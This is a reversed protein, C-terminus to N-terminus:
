RRCLRARAGSRSGSSTCWGLALRRPMLVWRPGCRRVQLADVHFNLPPFKIGFIYGYHSLTLMGIHKQGEEESPKWDAVWVHRLAKWREAPPSRASPMSLRARTKRLDTGSTIFPGHLYELHPVDAGNEPVEQIHCNLIHETEGCLRWNGSNIGPLDPPYWSPERGEADYWILIQGNTELCPYSKVKANSPISADCYPIKM